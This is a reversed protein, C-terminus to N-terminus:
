VGIQPVYPIIVIWEPKPLGFWLDCLLMPMPQIERWVLNLPPPILIPRIFFLRHEGFVEDYVDASVMHNTSSQFLDKLTAPHYHVNGNLRYELIGMKGRANTLPHPWLLNAPDPDPENM